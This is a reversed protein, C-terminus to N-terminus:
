EEPPRLTRLRFERLSAMFMMFSFLISSWESERGIAESAAWARILAVRGFVMCSLFRSSSEMMSRKRWVIYLLCLYEVLVRGLSTQSMRLVPALNLRLRSAGMRERSWLSDRGAQCWMPFDGPVLLRSYRVAALHRLLVWM